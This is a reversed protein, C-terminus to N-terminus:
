GGGAKPLGPDIVVDHTQDETVRMRKGDFSVTCASTCQVRYGISLDSSNRDATDRATCGPLLMVAVCLFLVASLYLKVPTKRLCLFVAQPRNLSKNSAVSLM